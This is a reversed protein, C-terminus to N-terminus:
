FAHGSKGSTRCMQERQSPQVFVPRGNSSLHAVELLCYAFAILDLLHALFMQSVGSDSIDRSPVEDFIYDDLRAIKKPRSAQIEDLKEESLRFRWSIYSYHKEQVQKNCAALLRSSPMSSAELIESPYSDEFTNKMATVKDVSLKAPFPEVWSPPNGSLSQSAPAM